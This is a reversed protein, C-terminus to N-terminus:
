TKYYVYIISLLLVVVTAILVWETIKPLTFSQKKEAQLEGNWELKKLINQLKTADVSGWLYGCTYCAFLKGNDQIVVRKNIFKWFSKQGINIPYFYCPEDYENDRIDPKGIVCSISNCKPCKIGNEPKM